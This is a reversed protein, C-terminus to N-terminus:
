NIDLDNLSSYTEEPNNYEVQTQQNKTEFLPSNNRYNAAGNNYTSRQQIEAGVKEGIKEVNANLRDNAYRNVVRSAHVGANGAALAFEKMNEMFLELEIFSSTKGSFSGENPDYNEILTTSKFEYKIEIESTLTDPNIGKILQVYPTVKGTDKVGTSIRLANVDAIIVSTSFEEGAELAPVFKQKYAIYLALAKEPVLLTSITNTYDFRKKETRLNEPLEPIFHISMTDNLYKQDLGSAQLTGNYNRFEYGSTYVRPQKYENANTQYNSM